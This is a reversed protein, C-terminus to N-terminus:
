LPVSTPRSQRRLEIEDPCRGRSSLCRLTKKIKKKRWMRGNNGKSVRHIATYENTSQFRSKVLSKKKKVTERERVKRKKITGHFFGEANQSIVYM